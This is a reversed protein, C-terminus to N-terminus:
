WKQTDEIIKSYSSWVGATYYLIMSYCWRTTSAWVLSYNRRQLNPHSALLADILGRDHRVLINCECNAQLPWSKPYTIADWHGWITWLSRPVVDAVFSSRSLSRISQQLHWLPPAAAMSTLLHCQSDAHHRCGAVRLHGRSHDDNCAQFIFKLILNLSYRVQRLLSIRSGVGIWFSPRDSVVM